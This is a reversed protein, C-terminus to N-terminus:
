IDEEQAVQSSVELQGSKWGVLQISGMVAGERTERPIGQELLSANRQIKDWILVDVLKNFTTHQCGLSLLIEFLVSLSPSNPVPVSLIWTHM